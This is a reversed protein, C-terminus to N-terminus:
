ATAAVTSDARHRTSTMSEPPPHREGFARRGGAVDSDPRPKSTIRAQTSPTLRRDAGPSPVTTV